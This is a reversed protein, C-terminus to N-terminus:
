YLSVLELFEGFLVHGYCFGTKIVIAVLFLKVSSHPLPMPAFPNTLDSERLVSHPHPKPSIVRSFGRSIRIIPCSM